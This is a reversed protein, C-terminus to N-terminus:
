YSLGAFLGFASSGLTGGGDATLTQWLARAGFSSALRAGPLRQAWELQAVLGLSSRLDSAVASILDQGEVSPALALSLGAAVRLSRGWAALLELPYARYRLQAGSSVAAYDKIGLTARFEVPQRWAPAYGAGVAAVFGGNLRVATTSATGGDSIRLSVTEGLPFDYGLTALWRLQASREPAADPALPPTAAGPAALALACAVVAPTIMRPFLM